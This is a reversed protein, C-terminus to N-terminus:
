LMIENREKAEQEVKQLLNQNKCFINYFEAQYDKHEDFDPLKLSPSHKTSKSSEKISLSEYNKLSNQLKCM